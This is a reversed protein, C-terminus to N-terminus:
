MLFDEVDMLSEKWAQNQERLLTTSYHGPDTFISFWRDTIYRPDDPYDKQALQYAGNALDNLEKITADVNAAIAGPIAAIAGPATPGTIIEFAAKRDPKWSDRQVLIEVEYVNHADKIWAFQDDPGQVGQIEGNENLYLVRWEGAPDISELGANGIMSRILESSKRAIKEEPTLQLEQVNTFAKKKLKDIAAPTIQPCGDFSIFTLPMLELPALAADTFKHCFSFDVRSLPMGQLYHMGDDTLHCMSFNIERLPMGALHALSLNTLNTCGEFNVSTLPMEKLMALADDTLKDCYSCEISSLPNGKLHAIGANTLKYCHSFVVSELHKGQLHELAAETLSKSDTKLHRLNPCSNVLKAFQDNNLPLGLLNLSELHAGHKEVYTLVSNFDGM